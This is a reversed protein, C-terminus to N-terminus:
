LCAPKVAVHFCHEQTGPLEEVFNIRGQRAQEDLLHKIVLASEAVLGPQFHPFRPNIARLDGSDTEEMLGCADLDFARMVQHSSINGEGGITLKRRQQSLREQYSTSRGLSTVSLYRNAGLEAQWKSSIESLVDYTDHDIFPTSYHYKHDPSSRSLDWKLLRMIAVHGMDKGVRVLKGAEAHQAIEEDTAYTQLGAQAIWEREIVTEQHVRELEAEFEAQTWDVYVSPLETRTGTIEALSM